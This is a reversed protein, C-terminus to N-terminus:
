DSDSDVNESSRVSRRISEQYEYDEEEQEKRKESLMCHYLRMPSKSLGRSKEWSTERASKETSVMGKAKQISPTLTAGDTLTTVLCSHVCIRFRSHQLGTHTCNRSSLIM